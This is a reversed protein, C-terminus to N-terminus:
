TPAHHKTQHKKGFELAFGPLDFGLGHRFFQRHSPAYISEKQGTYDEIRLPLSTVM